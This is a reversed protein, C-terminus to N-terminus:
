CLRAIAAATAVACAVWRAWSTLMLLAFLLLLLLTRLLEPTIGPAIV